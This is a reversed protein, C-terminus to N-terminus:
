KLHAKRELFNLIVAGILNGLAMVLLSILIHLSIQGSIVVYIINAISHEFGSLIFIIVAFSLIVNASIPNKARKFGEVGLYMMMGCLIAKFLMNIYTSEFKHSVLAQATEILNSMDGFYLCLAIFIGGLTNGILIILIDILYSPKEDIIYAVRGTYLKYDFNCIVLLGFSFLLAGMIPNISKLSLYIASGIGIMLGALIAKILTEIYHKM